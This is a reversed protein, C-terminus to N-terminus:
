IEGWGGVFVGPAPPFAPMETGARWFPFLWHLAESALNGSERIAGSTFGGGAPTTSRTAAWGTTDWHLYGFEARLDGAFTTARPFCVCLDLRNIGGAAYTYGDRQFLRLFYQADARNKAALGIEIENVNRYGHAVAIVRNNFGAPAFVGGQSLEQFSVLHTAWRSRPIGQGEAIMEAGLRGSAFPGVRQNANYVVVPFTGGPLLAEAARNRWWPLVAHEAIGRLAGIGAGVIGGIWAGRGAGRQWDDRDILGGVLAGIGAGILGMAVTYAASLVIRYAGFSMQGSPDIRGFPDNAAYVYPSPFEGAPDPAMFRGVAPDYFRARFDYLGSEVDLERGSFFYPVPTTDISAANGPMFQGFPLYNFNLVDTPTAGSPVLARTSGLADRVISIVKDNVIAAVLGMPGHIYEIDRGAHEELLPETGAGRVYLKGQGLAEEPAKLVRRGTGSYRFVTTGKPTAVKTPLSSVSEYAINSLALSATLRGNADWGYNQPTGGSASGLSTLKNTGADYHYDYAVPGAALSLLNGNGDYDIPGREGAVNWESHAAIGPAPQTEATAIRGQPDYTIGYQYPENTGGHVTVARPDGGSTDSFQLEEAFLPASNLEYNASARRGQFDYVISGCISRGGLWETKLNGNFAYDYAAYAAPEVPTGITSPRGLSDYGYVVRLGSPTGDPGPYAIQTVRGRLDYRYATTRPTADFSQVALTVSSTRGYVDYTYTEVVERGNEDKTTVQALRGKLHTSDPTGPTVDWSQRTTWQGVPTAPAAPPAFGIIAFGDDGSDSTFLAGQKNMLPGTWPGRGAMTQWLKRGSSDFAQLSADGCLVYTTGAADIVPTTPFSPTGTLWRKTGDPSLAVLQGSSTAVRLSGDPAVVPTGADQTVASDNFTWLLGGSPSVALVRGDVLGLYVTGDSDIVPHNGASVSGQLPLSWKQTGNSADVALLQASDVLVAYLTGDRGLVPACSLRVSLDLNWKLQGAPTFAAIGGRDTEAFITGDPGAVTGGVLAGTTTTWLRQGQSQFAALGKSTSVYISGDPGIAPVPGSTAGPLPSQFRQTGDSNLAYLEYRTAIVLSGASDLAVGGTNTGDNSSWKWLAAPPSTAAGAGSAGTTGSLVDDTPWDPQTNALGQLVAPDWASRIWGEEILRGLLDYKRYLVRPPSLAAGAADLSFRLRGAGDYIMEKSGADMDQLSVVRGLFDTVSMNSNDSGALYHNPTLTTLRLVGDKGRESRYGTTVKSADSGRRSAVTNGTRDYVRIEPVRNPGAPTPVFQTAFGFASPPTLGLDQTMAAAEPVGPGYAWSTVTPLGRAFASGAPATEAPRTLPSAESLARTAAFNPDDDLQSPVRGDGNYFDVVGGSLRGTTWDYSTFLDPQYAFNLAKVYVPLTRVAPRGWGDYITGRVVVGTAQADREIYQIERGLGDSITASVIPDRLLFVESVQGSALPHSDVMLTVPGSGGTVVASVVLQNDQFVMVSSGVAMVMVSVIASETLSVHGAAYAGNVNLQFQAYTIDVAVAGWVLKLVTNDENGRPGGPSYQVKFRVCWGFGTVDFDPVRPGTRLNADFLTIPMGMPLTVSDVYIGGGAAIVSLTTNNTVGESLVERAFTWGNLHAVQEGPGITAVVRQRDDRVCRLVDGNTHMTSRTLFSSPDYAAATFVADVPAFRVDDIAGDCAVVPPRAAVPSPDVYEIYRWLNAAPDGAPIALTSAGFGITGGAGGVRPLVWASVVYAVGPRPIFTVPTVSAATGAYSTAGTYGPQRPAGGSLQWPAADEYTEFGLYGAEHNSVSANTFTAVPMRHRADFIVSTSVRSLNQTETVGGTTSDRTVIRNTLQWATSDIHSPDFVGTDARLARYTAVPGWSVAPLGPWAAASPLSATPWAQFATGTSDTLAGNVTVTTQLVQNVMNLGLMAPYTQCAYDYTTVIVEDIMALTRNTTTEQTVFGHASPDFVRDMQRSQGDVVSLTRVPRVWYGKRNGVVVTETALWAQTTSAVEIGSGDLVRTYYPLGLMLAPYTAANGADQPSNPFTGPLGAYFYNKVVGNLTSQVEQGSFTQTVQGFFATAGSPHMEGQSYTYHTWSSGVGDDVQESAVVYTALAGVFADEIVRHLTLGTADKLTTAGRYSIFANTGILSTEGPDGSYKVLGDTVDLPLGRFTGNRLLAIRSMDKPFGADETQSTVGNIVLILYRSITVTFAIFESANQTSQQSLAQDERHYGNTVPNLERGTYTEALEGLKTWTGDSERHWVTTDGTFFRSTNHGSGGDDVVNSILYDLDLFMLDFLLGEPGLAMSLIGEVFYVAPWLKEWLTQNGDRFPDMKTQWQETVPDFEYVQALGNSTVTFSTAGVFNNTLSDNTYSTDLWTAGNFITVHKNLKTLLGGPMDITVQNGAVTLRPGADLTAIPLESGIERTEAITYDTAWRFTFHRYGAVNSNGGMASTNTNHKTQVVAFGAALQIVFQQIGSEHIVSGVNSTVQKKPCFFPVSWTTRNWDKERDLHYLRLETPATQNPDECASFLVAGLAAMGHVAGTGVVAEDVDVRWQPGDLTFRYMRGSDTDMLAYFRNGVASALKTGVTTSPTGLQWNGPVVPDKAFLRVVTAAGPTLVAFFESTLDVRVEDVRAMSGLDATLWRGRWQYATVYANAANATGPKGSWVVLAYDPGFYTKPQTWDSSDNQPRAISLDRRAGDIVQSAYRYTFLAGQPTLWSALAGFLAGQAANFIASSDTLSVSVGDSANEGYYTFVDEPAFAVGTASSRTIGKLLRKTLPGTGLLTYRFTVTSLPDGDPNGVTITTLYKTDVRTQYAHNAGAGPDDWRTYEDATKSAYAFTVRDGQAGTIQVLRSAVTFRGAPGPAQPGVEDLDQEYQFTVQNGEPSQRCALNWTTPLPQQGAAVSPGIWNGRTVGYEIAASKAAPTQENGGFIWRTGDEKIVVWMEFAPQYRIKWFVFNESLYAEGDSDSGTYVLPYASNETILYYRDDLVTGTGGTDRVVRDGPLNWGLGLPGTPAELNWIAVSRVASSYRIGVNVGTGGYGPLSLLPITLLLDGSALNVNGSDLAGPRNSVTPTTPVAALGDPGSTSADAPVRETDTM